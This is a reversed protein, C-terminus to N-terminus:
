NEDLHEMGGKVSRQGGIETSSSCRTSRSLQALSCTLQDAWGTWIPMQMPMPVSPHAEGGTLLRDVVASPEPHETSTM